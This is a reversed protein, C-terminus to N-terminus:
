GECLVSRIPHLTCEQSEGQECPGGALWGAFARTVARHGDRSSRAM